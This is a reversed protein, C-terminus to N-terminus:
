QFGSNIRHRSIVATPVPINTLPPFFINPIKRTLLTTDEQANEHAVMHIFPVTLVGNFSTKDLQVLEM